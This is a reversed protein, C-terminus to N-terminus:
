NRYSMEVVAAVQWDVFMRHSMQLGIWLGFTLFPIGRMQFPRSIAKRTAMLEPFHPPRYLRRLLEQVRRQVSAVASWCLHNESVLRRMRPIPHEAHRHWDGISALRWTSQQRFVILVTETKGRVSASDIEARLTMPEDALHEAASSELLVAAAPIDKEAWIAPDLKVEALIEAM